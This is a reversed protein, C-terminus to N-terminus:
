PVLSFFLFAGLIVLHVIGQLIHTRGAVFTISAVAFTVAALVLEKSELGLVIPVGLLISSFAVVPITLGISALASGLALNLSIQLRDNMAARVAAVGEPLLTLAAIGISLVAKPAGARALGRELTPSIEHALGVVAVLAILLLLGSQIAARPSPREDGNEESGRDIPLFYDRHRVTQVFVAAGWLALSTVAAFILQKSTYTPGPSSITFDPLVLSLTMLAILTALIANAGMIHFSQEGHRLGGIVLCLGVIGNCTLMTVAFITDRALTANEPGTVILEIILAVEIVTISITLLLAGLPEGVRHAVVEAHHVSAMVAAALVFMETVAIPLTIELFLAGLMLGFSVLPAANLCFSVLRAIMSTRGQM